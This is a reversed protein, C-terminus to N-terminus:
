FLNTILWASFYVFVFASSFLVVSMSLVAVAYVRDTMSVGFFLECFAQRLSSVIGCNLLYV